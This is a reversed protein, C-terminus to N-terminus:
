FGFHSTHVSYGADGEWNITVYLPLVGEKFKVQAVNDDAVDEADHRDNLVAFAVRFVSLM